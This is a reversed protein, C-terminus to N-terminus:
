NILNLQSRYKNGSDYDTSLDIVIFGHQEKWANLCFEKFKKITLDVEAFDRHLQEVVRPSSKFFILFNSNSRITHLPLHTYNQSLYICDCNASRGRTYYNEATNQKKDTMVDDFIMLNRITKDLDKPDPIEDPSDHFECDINTGEIENEQNCEAIARAADDIETNNKKLIKDSNMLKIIDIKPLGNQLGAMLVQYEPQYLSKAFVYLKDYNLLGPELLMKMLLATKGAGSAGVILM